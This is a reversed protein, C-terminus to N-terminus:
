PDNRQYRDEDDARQGQSHSQNKEDGSIAVALPAAVKLQTSPREPHALTENGGLVGAEDLLSRGAAFLAQGGGNKGGLEHLLASEIRPGLGLVGPGALGDGVPNRLEYRACPRYLADVSIAVAPFVYPVRFVGDRRLAVHHALQELGGLFVGAVASRGDLQ